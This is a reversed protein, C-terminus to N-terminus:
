TAIAGGLRKTNPSETSVEARANSADEILEVVHHPWWAPPRPRNSASQSRASAASATVSYTAVSRPIGRSAEVRGACTRALLGLPAKGHAGPVESRRRSASGAQGQFPFWGAPSRDMVVSVEAWSANVLHGPLPDTHWERMRHPRSLWGSVELQLADRLEEPSYTIRDEALFEEVESDNAFLSHRSEWLFTATACFM